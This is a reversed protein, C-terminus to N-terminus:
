AHFLIIDRGGDVVGRILKVDAVGVAGHCGVGDGAVLAEVAKVDHEEGTGILVSLLDLGLGVLGTDSGLLEHVLDHFALPAHLIKPLQHVDGVVAEDASGVIIM